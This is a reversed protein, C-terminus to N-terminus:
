INLNCLLCLHHRHSFDGCFYFNRLFSQIQVSLVLCFKRKCLETRQLFLGSIGRLTALEDKDRCHCWCRGTFSFRCHSDCKAVAQTLNAFLRDDRKTLRRKSRAKSHLAARTAAPVRLNYRHFIYIQVKSTVNMCNGSCVIQHRRENVVVNLL